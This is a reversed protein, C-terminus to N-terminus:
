FALCEESTSSRKSRLSHCDSCSSGEPTFLSFLFIFVLWFLLITGFRERNPCLMFSTTQECMIWTQSWFPCSTPTTIRLTSTSRWGKTGTNGTAQSQFVLHFNCFFNNKAFINGLGQVLRRFRKVYMHTVTEGSLRPKLCRNRFCATKSVSLKRSALNTERLKQFVNSASSFPSVHIQKRM